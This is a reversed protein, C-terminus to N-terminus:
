YKLKLSDYYNLIMDPKITGKHIYEHKYYNSIGNLYIPSAVNILDLEILSWSHENFYREGMQNKIIYEVNDTLYVFIGHRNNTSLGVRRKINFNPM